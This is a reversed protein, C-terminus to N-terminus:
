SPLAPPAPLVQLAYAPDLPTAAEVEDAMVLGPFPSTASSWGGVRSLEDILTSEYTHRTTFYHTHHGAVALSAAGPVAVLVLSAALQGRTTPM